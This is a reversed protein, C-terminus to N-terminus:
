HNQSYHRLGTIVGTGALLAVRALTVKPLLLTSLAGIVAGKVASQVQNSEVPLGHVFRVFHECNFTLLNWHLDRASMCARANAVVVHGPLQGHIASVNIRRGQTVQQWSEETVANTRRSLSILTPHGDVFQDSVIAYHKFIPYCVEIVTGPSLPKNM